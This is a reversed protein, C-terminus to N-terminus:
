LDIPESAVPLPGLVQAKDGEVLQGDEIYSLAASLEDFPGVIACSDIAWVIIIYM